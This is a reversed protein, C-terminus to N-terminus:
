LIQLWISNVLQSEIQCNQIWLPRNLFKMTPVMNVFTDRCLTTYSLMFKYLWLQKVFLQLWISSVLRLGKPFKTDM